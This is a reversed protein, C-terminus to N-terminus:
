TAQRREAARKAALERATRVVTTGDVGSVADDFEFQSRGDVRVDYRTGAADRRLYGHDVMDRRMTVHDLHLWTGANVLWEGLALNVETESYSREQDLTQAAARLVIHRDRPKRPLGTGGGTLSLAALREEFERASITEAV